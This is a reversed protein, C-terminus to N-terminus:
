ANFPHGGRTYVHWPLWLLARQLYIQVFPLITCSRNAYHGSWANLATVFIINFVWSVSLFRSFSLACLLASSIAGTKIYKLPMSAQSNSTRVGYFWPTHKPYLNREWQFPHISFTRMHSYPRKNMTRLSDGFIWNLIIHFLNVNLSESIFPVPKGTKTDTQIVPERFFITQLPPSLWPFVCDRQLSERSGGRKQFYPTHRSHDVVGEGKGNSMVGAGVCIMTLVLQWGLWWPKCVWKLVYHNDWSILPLRYANTHM